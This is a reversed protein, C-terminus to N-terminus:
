VEGATVFQWLLHPTFDMPNLSPGVGWVEPDGLIKITLTHREPVAHHMAAIRGFSLPGRIRVENRLMANFWRELVTFSMLNDKQSEDLITLYDSYSQSASM